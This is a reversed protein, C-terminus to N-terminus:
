KLSPRSTPLRALLVGIIAGVGDVFADGLEYTHAHGVIEIAEHVIGFAIVVPAVIFPSVSPLGFTWAFALIAFSVFHAFWHAEITVIRGASPVVSAGLLAITLAIACALSVRRLNQRM